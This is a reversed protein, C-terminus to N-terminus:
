AAAVLPDAPTRGPLAHVRNREDDLLAGVVLPGDHDPTTTV